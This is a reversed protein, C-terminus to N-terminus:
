DKAVCRSIPTLVVAERELLAGFDSGILVQWEACRGALIADHMGAMPVSPHCMLLDGDVAAHLWRDMCRRYADANGDFSWVGLLHRNQALGHARVLRTLARAGLMEILWPKFGGRPEREPRRGNRVWTGPSIGRTALVDLLADRVCPLQQVHQHGDVFDPSRGLTAEFEDMQAVIQGRLVARPLAGLYARVVLLPLRMPAVAHRPYQTLDLHLGVDTKGRELRRLLSREAAWAPAGVMCSVANLRGADALGVVARSIGEHLGFDDVGIAIRRPTM